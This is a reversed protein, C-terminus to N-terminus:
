LAEFFVASMFTQWANPQELEHEAYEFRWLGPGMLFIAGEDTSWRMLGVKIIMSLRM